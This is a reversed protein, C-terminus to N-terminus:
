FLGKLSITEIFNYYLFKYYSNYKIYIEMWFSKLDSIFLKWNFILYIGAHNPNTELIKEAIKM